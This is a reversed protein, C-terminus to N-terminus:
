GCSLPPAPGLGYPPRALRVDRARPLPGFGLPAPMQALHEATAERLRVLVVPGGLVARVGALSPECGALQPLLGVAIALAAQVWRRRRNVARLAAAWDLEPLACAAARENNAGEGRRHQEFRGIVQEIALLSSSVRSAAFDPLLSFVQHGLPCHWFAVRLGAPEVRNYYGVKRFGCGGEPHLPCTKISARQWAKQRIYDESSLETEHRLQVLV